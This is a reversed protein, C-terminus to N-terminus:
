KSTLVIKHKFKEGANASVQLVDFSLANWDLSLWYRKQGIDVSSGGVRLISKPFRRKLARALGCDDNDYYSNGIVDSPLIHVVLKKM